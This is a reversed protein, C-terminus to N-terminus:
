SADSGAAKAGEKLIKSVLKDVATDASKVVVFDGTGEVRVGVKQLDRVDLNKLADASPKEEVIVLLDAQEPLHKRILAIVKADDDWDMKGTGKRFGVTIGHLTFTKPKEFLHPAGEVVNRLEGGITAAVNASEKIAGIHRRQVAAVEAELDAVRKSLTERAKSYKKALTDIEALSTETRTASREPALAIMNTKSKQISLRTRHARIFETNNM